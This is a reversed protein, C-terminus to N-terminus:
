EFGLHLPLCKRTRSSLVNHFFRLPIGLQYKAYTEEPATSWPWCLYIMWLLQVWIRQFKEPRFLMWMTWGTISFFFILGFIFLLVISGKFCFCKGCESRWSRLREAGAIRTRATWVVVNWLLRRERSRDWVCVLLSVKLLNMVKKRYAHRVASVLHEFLYVDGFCGMGLREKLEWSGCLHNPKLVVPEM